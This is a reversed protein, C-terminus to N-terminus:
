RRARRVIEVMTAVAKQLGVELAHAIIAYGISVERMQPIAVIARTNTYDLGHGAHIRLGAEEGLAAARAIRQRERQRTRASTADAYEGTHIEVIDAGVAAAARIQREVPDIFLSVPISAAHFRKIVRGLSRQKRVVDLGGETTLELRREPVLTVLDPKTRLAVSIIEPTAAMELDLKARLSTRLRRVDEDRIHRRDERLHCVVGDAGAKLCTRAAKVPDPFDGGRANRVTAIHDINILLNVRPLRSM